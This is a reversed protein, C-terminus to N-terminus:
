RIWGKYVGIVFVSVIILFTIFLELGTLLIISGLDWNWGLAQCLLYQNLFGNDVM